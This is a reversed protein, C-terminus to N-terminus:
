TFRFVDINWKKIDKKMNKFKNKLNKKISREGVQDSDWKSQVLDKFGHETLWVDL